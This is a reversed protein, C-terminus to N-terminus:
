CILAGNSLAVLARALIAVIIAVPVARAAYSAPAVRIPETAIPTGAPSAAPFWFTIFAHAALAQGAAAVRILGATVPCAIVFPSLLTTCIDRRFIYAVYVCGAAVAGAAVWRFAAVIAYTFTRFTIIAV